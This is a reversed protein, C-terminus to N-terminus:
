ALLVELIKDKGLGTGSCLRLIHFVGHPFEKVLLHIGTSDLGHFVKFASVGEVEWAEGTYLEPKATLTETVHLAADSLLTGGCDLIRMFHAGYGLAIASSMQEGPVTNAWGGVTARRMVFGYNTNLTTDPNKIRETRSEKIDLDDVLAQSMVVYEGSQEPDSSFRDTFHPQGYGAYATVILETMLVPALYAPKKIVAWILLYVAALILAFVTWARFLEEIQWIDHRVYYIILGCGVAAMVFSVVALMRKDFNVYSWRGSGEKECRGAYYAATTLLVLPILYGCRVPYHYYTGMHWLLNISEFPILACPYMCFLFFFAAQRRERRFRFLGAALIVIAALSGSLLWWKIYYMDAGIAWLIDHLTEFLGGSLNSNFRSSRTMQVAAPMLIFAAIGIGGFTGWFIVKAPCVM